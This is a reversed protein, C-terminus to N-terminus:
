GKMNMQMWEGWYALFIIVSSEGQMLEADDETYYQELPKKKPRQMYLICITENCLGVIGDVWM